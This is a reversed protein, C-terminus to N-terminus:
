KNIRDNLERLKELSEDMTADLAKLDELAQEFLECVEIVSEADSGVVKTDAFDRILDKFNLRYGTIRKERQKGTEESTVAETIWMCWQDANIFYDGVKIKM